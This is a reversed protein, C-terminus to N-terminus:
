LLSQELDISRMALLEQMRVLEHDLSISSMAEVAKLLKAPLPSADKMAAGGSQM